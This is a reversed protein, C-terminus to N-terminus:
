IYYRYIYMVIYIYVVDKEKIGTEKLNKQPNHSWLTAAGRAMRQSSQKERQAECQKTRRPRKPAKPRRLRGDLAMRRVVFSAGSSGWTKATIHKPSLVEFFKLSTELSM